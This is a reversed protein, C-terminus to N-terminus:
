RDQLFGTNGESSIGGAFFALNLAPLSTAVLAGRGISLAGAGRLGSFRTLSFVASQEVSSINGSQWYSGANCQFCRTSGLTSISGEGCWRCFSSGAVSFFNPPCATCAKNLEFTGAPCPTCSSSNLSSTFGPPCLTCISSGDTSFTGPICTQCISSGSASSITGARCTMCPRGNSPSFSGAPCPSCVAPNSGSIVLASGPSCVLISCSSSGESSFSNAACRSCTSFGLAPVSVSFTNAPCLMCQSNGSLSYTGPPCFICTSSGSIPAISGPSCPICASSGFSSYFGLRCPLCSSSDLAGVIPNFTGPACLACVGQSWYSGVPCPLCDNFSSSGESRTYLGVPCKECVMSAVKDSFEGFTCKSCRSLGSLSAYSGLPCSLCSSPSKAGFETSFYGPQCSSCISAGAVSYQGLPCSTPSVTGFNCYSGAPCLQCSQSSSSRNVSSFFGANCPTCSVSNKDVSYTGQPCPLCATAYTSNSYQLYSGPACESFHSQDNWFSPLLQPDFVAPFSLGYVVDVPIVSDIQGLQFTAITALSHGPAANGNVIGPFECRFLAAFSSSRLAPSFQFSVQFYATSDITISVTSSLRTWPASASMRQWCFFGDPNSNVSYSFSANGLKLIDIPLSSNSPQFLVSVNSVGASLNSSISIAANTLRGQFIYMEGLSFDIIKRTAYMFSASIVRSSPVIANNLGTVQCTVYFNSTLYSPQSWVINVQGNAVDYSATSGHSAIGSCSAQLNGPSTVPLNSILVGNVPGSPPDVAALTVAVVVNTSRTFTNSVFLQPACLLGRSNKAIGFMDRKCVSCQSAKVSSFLNSPCGMCGSTSEYPRFTGPQCDSCIGAGSSSMTGAPCSQCQAQSVAGFFSSFTNPKCPFCSKSGPASSYLGADCINCTSSKELAFTGPVCELCIRSGFAFESRTGGPCSSCSAAGAVSSFLGPGCISCETAGRKDSFSGPPCRWCVNSGSKSSYSGTPCTRCSAISIPCTVLSVSGAPCIICRSSDDPNSSNATLDTTVTLDFPGATFDTGLGLSDKVLVLASHTSSAFDPVPCAANFVAMSKPLVDLLISRTCDEQFNINAESSQWKLSFIPAASTCSQPQCRAIIEVVLTDTTSNLLSIKEVGNVYAGLAGSDVSMPVDFLTTVDIPGGSTPPGSTLGGLTILVNGAPIARNSSLVISSSTAFSAQFQANDISSDVFPTSSSDFFNSPFNLTIPGYVASAMSFTITAFAGQARPARHSDSMSFRLSQISGGIRGSDVPDSVQDVSSKVYVSGGNTAKGLIFGRISVIQPGAPMSALSLVALVCSPSIWKLCSTCGFSIQLPNNGPQFFDVPHCFQLSGGIPIVSDSSFSYVVTVDTNFATRAGSEIDFQLSRIQGWIPGSPAAILSAYDHSTAVNMGITTPMTAGLTINVLKINVPGAPILTPLGNLVITNINEIVVPLVSGFLGIHAQLGSSTSAFTAARINNIQRYDTSNPNQINSVAFSAFKGSILTGGTFTVTLVSGTLTASAAPNDSFGSIFTVANLRGPVSTFGSLTIVFSNFSGVKTPTFSISASTLAGPSVNDLVVSVGLLDQPLDLIAVLTGKSTFELLNMRWDYYSMIAARVSTLAAQPASPTRISLVTFSVRSGPVFSGESFAVYLVDSGYPFFATAFVNARFGVFSTVELNAYSYSYKSQPDQYSGGSFGTLTVVFYTINVAITPTFSFAADAWSNTAQVDLNISVDRLLRPAPFIESVYVSNSVDLIVDNALTAAGASSQETQPLMPNQINSVFFSIYSGSILSGSTFTVSLVGNVLAATASTSDRFGNFRSVSLIQSQSFGTLTVTFRNFGQVNSPRVSFGVDSSFGAIPNEVFVRVQLSETIPNINALSTSDRLLLDSFTAAGAVKTAQPLLPNRVNSITFYYSGRSPLSYSCIFSVKLVPSDFTQRASCGWSHHMVPSNSPISFGSLTIVFVNFSLSSSATFQIRLSSVAGAAPNDSYVYVNQLSESISPINATHTSDVVDLDLLTAAGTRFADRPVPPNRINPLLFTFSNQNESASLSSNMVITLTGSGVVMDHSFASSPIIQRPIGPGSWSVQLHSGPGQYNVFQYNHLFDVLFSQFLSAHPCFIFLLIKHACMDDLPWIPKLPAHEM